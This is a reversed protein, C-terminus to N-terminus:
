VALERHINVFLAELALGASINFEEFSRWTERVHGCAREAGDLREASADESLEALRDVHVAAAEAGAGVVILDYVNPDASRADPKAAIHDIVAVGQAMALKIVPAGALDGIVYLGPVNSENNARLAPRRTPMDGSALVSEIKQQLKRLM